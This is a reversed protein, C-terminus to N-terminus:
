LHIWWAPPIVVLHRISEGFANEVSFIVFCDPCHRVWATRIQSSNIACQFRLLSLATWTSGCCPNVPFANRSSVSHGVSEMLEQLDLHGSLIMLELEETTEIGTIELLTEILTALDYNIDVNKQARIGNESASLTTAPTLTFIMIASLALALYRKFKNM